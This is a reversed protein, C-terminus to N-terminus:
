VFGSDMMISYEVAMEEKAKLNPRQEDPITEGAQACGRRAPRLRPYLEM